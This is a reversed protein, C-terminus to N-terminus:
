LLPMSRALNSAFILFFTEPLDQLVGVRKLYTLSRVSKVIANTHKEFLLYKDITVGPLSYSHSNNEGNLAFHLHTSNVRSKYNHLHLVNSKKINAIMKHEDYWISPRCIVPLKTTSRHESCTQAPHLTTTKM